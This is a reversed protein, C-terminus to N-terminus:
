EHFYEKILDLLERGDIFLSKGAPQFGYKEKYHNVLETKPILSVAADIGYKKIALKAAYGLLNGAIRDVQKSAGKHIKLVALLDVHIRQEEEVDIISMLGLISADLDKQIRYISDPDVSKWDFFFDHKHILKLENKQIKSITVSLREDTTVDIIYM